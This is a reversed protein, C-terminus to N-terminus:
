VDLTWETHETSWVININNVIFTGELFILPLLFEFFIVIFILSTFTKIINRIQYFNNIFYFSCRVIM